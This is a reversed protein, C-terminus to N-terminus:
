LCDVVRLLRLVALAAGGALIVAFAVTVLLWLASSGVRREARSAIASNTGSLSPHLLNDPHPVPVLARQARPSGGPDVLPLAESSQGPEYAAGAFVPQRGGVRPPVFGPALAVTEGLNPETAMPAAALPGNWGETQPAQIATQVPCAQQIPSAQQIPPGQVLRTRLNGGTSEEDDGTTRLITRADDQEDGTVATAVLSANSAGPLSPVAAEDPTTIVSPPAVVDAVVVKRMGAHRAERSAPINQTMVRGLDSLSRMPVLLTRMGEESDENSDEDDIAMLESVGRDPHWEELARRLAAVRTM